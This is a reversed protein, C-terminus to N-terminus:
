YCVVCCAVIGQHTHPNFAVDCENNSGIRRGNDFHLVIYVFVVVVIAVVNLMTGEFGVEINRLPNAAINLRIEFGIRLTSVFQTGQFLLITLHQGLM